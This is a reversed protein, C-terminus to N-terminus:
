DPVENPQHPIHCESCKEPGYHAAPDIQKLFEPKNPARQHCRVCQAQDMKAIHVVTPDLAHEKSIGHCAECSLAKHEFSSLQKEISAHCEACSKRGALVPERNSLEALADGRYWGHQGFSDPTLLYRGGSYLGVITITLLLLRTVQPSM